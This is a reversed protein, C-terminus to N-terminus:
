NANKKEEQKWIFTHYIYYIYIYIYVSQQPFNPILQLRVFRDELMSNDM